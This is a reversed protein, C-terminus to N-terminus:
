AVEMFALDPRRDNKSRFIGGYKRAYDRMNSQHTAWVLHRANCCLTNDCAHAAELGEPEEGTALALVLRHVHWVRGRRGGAGIRGRLGGGRSKQTAGTWLHCADPGGSCDIKAFLREVLPMRDPM